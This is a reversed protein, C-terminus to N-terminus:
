DLSMDRSEAERALNDCLQVLLRFDAISRQGSRLEAFIVLVNGNEVHVIRWRVMRCLQGLFRLISGFVDVRSAPSADRHGKGNSGCKSIFYVNVLEERRKRMDGARLGGRFCVFGGRCWVLGEVVCFQVTRGLFKPVVM